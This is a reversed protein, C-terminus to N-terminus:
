LGHCSMFMQLAELQNIVPDVYCCCQEFCVYTSLLFMGSFDHFYVAEFGDIM